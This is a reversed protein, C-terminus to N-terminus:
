RRWPRLPRYTPVATPTSRTVAVLKRHVLWAIANQVTRKSLGTGEAIDLLAVTVTQRGAGSTHRVFHLYVLFASPQRDHGVLDAMLTDLVYPDLAVSM